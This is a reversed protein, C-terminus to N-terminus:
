KGPYFKGADTPMPGPTHRRIWKRHAPGPRHYRRGVPPPKQVWNWQEMAPWFVFYRDWEFPVASRRWEGDSRFVLDVHGEANTMALASGDVLEPHTPTQTRGDSLTWSTGDWPAVDLNWVDNFSQPAGNCGPEGSLAEIPVRNGGGLLESRDDDWDIRLGTHGDVAVWRVREPGESGDLDLKLECADKAVKRKDHWMVRKRDEAAYAQRRLRKAKACAPAPPTEQEASDRAYPTGGFDALPTFLSAHEGDFFLWKDHGFGLADGGEGLPDKIRTIEEATRPGPRAVLQALSSACVPYGPTPRIHGFPDTGLASSPRNDGWQVLLGPRMDAPHIMPIAADDLGDGDLDATISCTPADSETPIRDVSNELSRQVDIADSPSVEDYWLSEEDERGVYYGLERYGTYAHMALEFGHCAVLWGDPLAFPSSADEPGVIDPKSSQAVDTTTPAARSHTPTTAANPVARCGALASSILFFSVTPLLSSM